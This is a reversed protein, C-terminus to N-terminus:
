QGFGDGLVQRVRIPTTSFMEAIFIDSFGQERLIKGGWELSISSKAAINRANLAQSVNRERELGRDFAEQIDPWAAACSRAAGLDSPIRLNM